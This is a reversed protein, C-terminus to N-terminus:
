MEELKDAIREISDAMQGFSELAQGTEYSGFTDYIVSALKDIATAIRYFPETMEEIYDKDKRDM